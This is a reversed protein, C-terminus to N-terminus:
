RNKEYIYYGYVCRTENRSCDYTDQLVGDIVAAVHGSLKVIIRGAPLEDAKLHTNTGQGIKMTPTWKFGLKVLYRRTTNKYVGTRASSRFGTAKRGITMRETDKRFRNIEDYVERYPRGTVIAIARTVCDNAKGKFGAAERGGDNYQWHM